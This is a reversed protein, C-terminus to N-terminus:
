QGMRTPTTEVVEGRYGAKELSQLIAETPVPCCAETSVVAQKKQYDVKVNLVGPVDKISREVLASCGECSMGAVTFSTTRVVPNEGTPDATRTGGVLFFSVYQPFFLFAVALLTVGWLMVKNFRMVDFRRKSSTASSASCCDHAAACCDDTTSAAQRPRYTFYFAAALFVVTLTIFLPRFSELAGAIGAGSVGCALLVLPLWCCSSALIASFVTGVKSFTEAKSGRPRAPSLEAKATEIGKAVTGLCCSGSPNKVECACGLDKM